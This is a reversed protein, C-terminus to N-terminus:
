KHKVCANCWKMGNKRTVVDVKWLQTNTGSPAFSAIPLIDKIIQPDVRQQLFARASHHSTLANDVYRIQQFNMFIEKSM